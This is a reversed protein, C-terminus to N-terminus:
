APWGAVAAALYSLRMPELKCAKLAKFKFALATSRRSKRM